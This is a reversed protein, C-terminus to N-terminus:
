EVTQKRRCSFFYSKVTLDESVPLFATTIDSRRKNELELFFCHFLFQEHLNNIPLEFTKESVCDNRLCRRRMDSYSWMPM